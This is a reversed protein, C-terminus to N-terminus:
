SNALSLTGIFARKVFQLAHYQVGAPLCPTRTAYTSGLLGFMGVGEPNEPLHKKYM